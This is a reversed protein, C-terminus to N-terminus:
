QGRGGRWGRGQGQGQGGMSGPGRGAGRGGQWGMGSSGSQQASGVTGSGQAQQLCAGCCCCAQGAVMGGGRGGQWGMGRGGQGANAAATVGADGLVRAGCCCTMGGATAGRGLGAQPIATQAPVAAAQAAAPVGAGPAIGARRQFAPLHREQSAWRLQSMVAQVDAEKVFTLFGDYLAVNEQEIKIAGLLAAQLTAPVDVKRAAWADPPAELAYKALLALLASEHRAEANVINSFPRIEGYKALVAGYFAKAKREDDLASLIANRTQVDLRSVNVAARNRMAGQRGRQASAVSASILLTATLVITISRSILM